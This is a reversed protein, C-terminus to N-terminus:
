LLIGQALRKAIVDCYREEIEVGIARRGSNRAAILTSGSGAFPDAIVGPPAKAILDESVAVPKQTPHDRGTFNGPLVRYRLVSSSRPGTWGTGYIWILEYNPRWPFTLDGMGVIDGKDFVLPTSYPRGPPRPQRISAFVAAPRDGWAELVADRVASNEDGTITDGTFQGGSHTAYAIGYPPDTVMVDAELWADITLCDGHYLTM